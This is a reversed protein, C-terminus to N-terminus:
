TLNCVSTDLDIGTAATANLSTATINNTAGNADTISGAGATLTATGSAFVVSVNLDGTASTVTTDGNAANVNLVNAGNLEDLNINGVGTNSATLNTVTTDLDIGTAATAILSTATINNAAGNADTISGATATLTVTKNTGNATVTTVNLNGTSTTVGVNGNAASVNLLNAGNAEDIGIDGSGTTTATLNTVNTDLDIGTAASAVLSTASVNNGGGNADTIAGATATLTALGTGANLLAGVAINGTTTNATINGGNTTIASNITIGTAANMVVNLIGATATIVAGITISGLANLTLTAIGDGAVATTIAALVSINGAHSLTSTTNIIVDTGANLFATISSVLVQSPQASPSSNDPTWTSGTFSGRPNSGSNTITSVIEVNRPDLLWTGAEGNDASADIEIGNVDLYEKGSTEIFGGNGSFAGGKASFSGYVLAVQEAGVIIKGGNGSTVADAKVEVDSGVFVNSATLPGTVNVDSGILITGGGIDGSADFLSSGEVIVNGHTLLEISGGKEGVDYGSADITANNVTINGTESKLIIKGNEQAVSKAEIIGTHNIISDYIAEAGAAQLVVAGGNALLVGANTVLGNTEILNGDKDFVQGKVGTLDGLDINLVGDRTLPFSARDGAALVVAGGNSSITGLNHVGGNAAVLALLGQTLNTIDGTNLIYGSALSPDKALEAIGAFFQEQNIGLNSLLLDGQVTITGNNIITPAIIALIGWIDIAGNNLFNNTELIGRCSPCVQGLQDVVNISLQEGENVLISDVSLTTGEQINIQQAPASFTLVHMVALLAAFFKKSSKM